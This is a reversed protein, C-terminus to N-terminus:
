HRGANGGNTRMPRDFAPADRDFAGVKREVPRVQRLHADAIQRGDPSLVFSTPDDTAPTVIETRTEPPLTERVYRLTPVALVAM